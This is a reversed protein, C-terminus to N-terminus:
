PWDKNWFRFPKRPKGQKMFLEGQSAFAELLRPGEYSERYSLAKELYSQALDFKEQKMYLNALLNYLTIILTPNTLKKHLALAKLYSHEALEFDEKAEYIQGLVEWLEFAQNFFNEKSAMKLGSLATKLAADYKKYKIQVRAQYEYVLCRIHSVPILHINEILEELEEQGEELRGSQELLIVKFSLLAYYIELREEGDFAEIGNEIEELATTIENRQFYYNALLNFAASRLNDPNEKETLQIVKWAEDKAEVLRNMYFLTKAKLFSLYPSEVSSEYYQLRKFDEELSQKLDISVELIQLRRKFEAPDEM